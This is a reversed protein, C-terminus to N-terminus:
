STHVPSCVDEIGGCLDSNSDISPLTKVHDGAPETPWVDSDLVLTPEDARSEITVPREGSFNFVVSFGGGAAVVAGPQPELGSIKSLYKAVDLKNQVSDSAKAARYADALLDEALMTMKHKTTFGESAITETYKEVEKHFWQHGCMKIYDDATYGYKGVIDIPTGLGMALDRMMQPPLDFVNLDTM